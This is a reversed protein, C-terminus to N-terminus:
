QGGQVRNCFLNDETSDGLYLGLCKDAKFSMSASCFQGYAEKRKPM